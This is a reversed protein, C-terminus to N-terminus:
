EQRRDEAPPLPPLLAVAHEALVADCSQLWEMRVCARAHTAQIYDYTSSGQPLSPLDPQPPVVTVAMVNHDVLEEFALAVTAACDDVLEAFDMKANLVAVPDRGAANVGAHGTVSGVYDRLEELQAIGAQGAGVVVRNDRLGVTLELVPQQPKPTRRFLPMARSALSAGM